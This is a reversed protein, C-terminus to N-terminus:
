AMQHLSASSAKDKFVGLGMRLEGLGASLGTETDAWLEKLRQRFVQLGASMIAANSIFSPLQMDYSSTPGCEHVLVEVRQLLTLHDKLTTRLDSPWGSM